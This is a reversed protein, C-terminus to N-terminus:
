GAAPETNGQRSTKRYRSPTVGVSRRFQRSAFGPDGWGVQRSIAGVPLDTTRLLHAMREARIMALFAFPSKGFSEVFLRDLQSESLHVREALERLTWRREPSGHLLVAAERAEERLAQSRRRRPLSPCTTCRQTATVRQATVAVRPVIVDLLACVLAEMRYFREPAAGGSSLAALEDLWPILQGARDEELHIVQAPEAYHTDLFRRADLRDTFQAIYQWFVQDVVYDRDLYLTMATVTEEPEVGCLTNADLVVVDGVNVHRIGFESCLVAGGARVVIVRIWDFAM